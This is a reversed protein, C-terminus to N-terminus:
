VAKKAAHPQRVPPTDLARCCISPFLVPVSGALPTREAAEPCLVTIPITGLGHYGSERSSPKTGSFLHLPMPWTQQGQEFPCPSIVILINGKGGQQDPRKWFHLIKGHIILLCFFLDSGKWCSSSLELSKLLWLLVEWCTARLLFCASDEGHWVNTCKLLIWFSVNLRRKELFCCM